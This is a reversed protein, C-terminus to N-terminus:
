VFEMMYYDVTVELEAAKQEYFKETYEQAEKWKKYENMEVESHNMFDTFASIFQQIDEDNMKNTSM